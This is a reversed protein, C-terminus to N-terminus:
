KKLVQSPDIAHGDAIIEFHIHPGTSYGSSGVFGIVDGKAVKKGTATAFNSMHGYVTKYGNGHNIRVYRGYGGNWDAMEVMGSGSAYVPAGFDTAIDIGPHWQSSSAIPDPRHGYTSSIRGGDTPWKDPMSTSNSHKETAGPALLWAIGLLVVVLKYNIKNM